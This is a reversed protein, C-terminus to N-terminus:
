KMLERIPDYWSGDVVVYRENNTKRYFAFTGAPSFFNPNNATEESAFIDRIAKIEESSLNQPNYCNPGNLVPM